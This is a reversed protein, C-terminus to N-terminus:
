GNKKKTYILHGGLFLSELSGHSGSHIHNHVGVRSHVERKIRPGYGFTHYYSSLSRYKLRVSRVHAGLYVALLHNIEGKSIVAIELIQQIQHRSSSARMSHM